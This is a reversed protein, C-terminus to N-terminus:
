STFSFIFVVIFSFSFSFVFSFIGEILDAMSTLISCSLMLVRLCVEEHVHQIVPLPVFDMSSAFQWNCYIRLLQALEQDSLHGKYLSWKKLLKDALHCYYRTVLPAMGGAFFM